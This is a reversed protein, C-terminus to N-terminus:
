LFQVAPYFSSPEARNINQRKPEQNFHLTHWYLVPSPSISKDSVKKRERGTKEEKIWKYKTKDREIQQSKKKKKQAKVLFFIKNLVIKAGGGGGGFNIGQINLCNRV